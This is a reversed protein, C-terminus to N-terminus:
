GTADLVLLGAIEELKKKAAEPAWLCNLFFQALSKRLAENTLRVEFLARGVSDIDTFDEGAAKCAFFVVQASEEIKLRDALLIDLLEPVTMGTHNEIDQMAEYCPKMSYLAGGLTIKVLETM